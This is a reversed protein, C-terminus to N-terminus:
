PKVEVLGAAMRERHWQEAALQAAELTLEEYAICSGHRSQYEWATYYFKGTASHYLWVAFDGYPTKAHWEGNIKFWSLPKIRYVNDSM